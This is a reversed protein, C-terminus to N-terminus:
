MLCIVCAVLTVLTSSCCFPGFFWLLLFVTTVVPYTVCKGTKELETCVPTEKNQCIPLSVQPENALSLHCHNRLQQTSWSSFLCMLTCSSLCTENSVTLIVSRWLNRKKFWTNFQNYLVRLELLRPRLAAHVVRLLEQWASCCKGRVFLQESCSFHQPHGGKPLFHRQFRPSQSSGRDPHMRSLM